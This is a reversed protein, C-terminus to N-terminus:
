HEHRDDGQGRRLDIAPPAEDPPPAEPRRPLPVVVPRAERARIQEEPTPRRPGRGEPFGEALGRRVQRGVLAWCRGWCGELAAALSCVGTLVAAVALWAWLRPRGVGGLGIAALAAAGVASGLLLAAILECRGTRCRRAWYAGAVVIAVVGFLVVPMTLPGPLTGLLLVTLALVFPLLWFWRCNCVEGLEEAPRRGDGNPSPEVSDPDGGLDKVRDGLHLLYRLFIPYWRDTPPIAEAIHRMVSLTRTAVPLIVPADLVPITIQFAGLIQHTIGSYQHVSIRFVQKTVVTQPLEISLLGPINVERGGPVPLFSVDGVLCRLTHQDVREFRPPGGRRSAARLVAELDVDPLYLTVTSDAPLDRWRFIVEDPPYSRPGLHSQMLMPASVFPEWGPLMGRSPKLEFTHQITHTLPSGPNDSEEIALNRQSLNDSSGPTAGAPILDPEFFVEAIFCQHRGRILRQISHCSAAAFPGDDGVLPHQPFQDETQNFDLWCGFFGVSETAGLPVLTRKNDPDLQTTMSVATADVRPEAFFPISIIDTGQRGLLAIQDAGAGARRYTTAPDFEIATGVTNFLRFFVRVDTAPLAIARYRVMAVAYNFVRQGGVERSLELMSAAQDTSIAFFPHSPSIATGNFNTLLQNIFTNGAGAGAGQTVGGRTGGARIQFVRLDTSLWSVPGDLMYPNPQKSLLLAAVCRHPGLQASVHVSRVETFGAYATTNAFRLTVPYTVRQGVDPPLAPDEYLPAGVAATLGPVVAGGPMDFEFALTPTPPLTGLEHPLLGDVLLYLADPFEATPGASLLADVELISFTSRDTVVQCSLRAVRVFRAQQCPLGATDVVWLMYYGPPAVGSNPPATVSLQGAAAVTFDLAVYRQDADFAHTVSGCRMLAVRQISAAQPTDLDFSQGYTVVQPASTITPRAANGFWSPSHIEIRKEAIAADSPDGMNAHHNSGATWIRGDSLLIAVSHYNRIVTAPDADLSQWAGLPVGGGAEDTYTLTTWNIGPTYIEPELVGVEPSRTQVGGTVFVEGTPMLVACGFERQRNAALGTRAATAQWGATGRVNLRRPTVGDVLLVREAYGDGPLLPLLVSTGDWGQYIGDGPATFTVPTLAQGGPDYIRTQGGLPTACLITGDRLLHVRPYFELHVATTSLLSWFNAGPLYREPTDNNHRSDDRHPHGSFAVVDGNAVTVLTPYWRGGGDPQGPEPNLDAVRRWASARPEFLWSGREGGFNLSHPHAPDGGTGWQATGGSVLLRGDGIFAHGSCFVDTANGAPFTVPSIANSTPDFLRTNDIAGSSLGTSWHQDGGFYLIWGSPLLAAHVALIQSDPVINWPM